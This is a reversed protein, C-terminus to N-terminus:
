WMLLMRELPAISRQAELHVVAQVVEQTDVQLLEEQALSQQIM